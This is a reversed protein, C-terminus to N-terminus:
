PRSDDLKENETGLESTLGIMWRDLFLAKGIVEIFINAYFYQRKPVIRKGNGLWM